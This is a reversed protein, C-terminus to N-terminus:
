DLSFLPAAAAKLLRKAIRIREKLLTNRKLKEPDTTPKQAMAHSLFLQLAQRLPALMNVVSEKTSNAGAEAAVPAIRQIALIVQDETSDVLLSTLFARLFFTHSPPLQVFDMAKLISLSITGDRVLVALM